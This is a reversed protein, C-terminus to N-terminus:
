REAGKKSHRAVNGAKHIGGRSVDYSYYDIAYHSAAVPDALSSSTYIAGMSGTCPVITIISRVGVKSDTKLRSHSLYGPFTTLEQYYCIFSGLLACSHPGSSKGFVPSSSFRSPSHYPPSAFNRSYLYLLHVPVTPSRLPSNLYKM